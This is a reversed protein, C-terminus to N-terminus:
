VPAVPRLRIAALIGLVVFVALVRDACHPVATRITDAGATASVAAKSLSARRRRLRQSLAGRGRQDCLDLALRGGPSQRLACRARHGPDRSLPNGRCAVAPLRNCSPLLGDRQDTNHDGSFTRDVRQADGRRARRHSRYHGHSNRGPEPCCARAHLNIGVHWSCSREKLDRDRGFFAAAGSAGAVFCGRLEPGGSRDGVAAPLHEGVKSRRRCHVAGCGDFNNSGCRCSRLRRRRRECPTRHRRSRAAGASRSRQRRSM